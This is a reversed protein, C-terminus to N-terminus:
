GKALLIYAAYIAFAVIAILIIVGMAIALRVRGVKGGLFDGILIAVAVGVVIAVWRIVTTLVDM